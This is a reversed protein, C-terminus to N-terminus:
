TFTIGGLGAAEALRKTHRATEETAKATREAATGAGLGALAGAAALNLTPGIAKLIQEVSFGALAFFSMADAAQSASFVTQEGLRKAEDSLRTFDKGTAGTLARVRAMRQEFGAFVTTSLALPTAAAVSAAVMRQGIARVGASFARLQRQARKLGATLRDSVGLEVFARGARIGQVAVM